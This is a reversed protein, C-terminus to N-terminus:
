FEGKSETKKKGRKKKLKMPRRSLIHEMGLCIHTVARGILLWFWGVIVLSTVAQLFATGLGLTLGPLYISIM